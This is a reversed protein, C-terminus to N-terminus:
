ISEGKGLRLQKLSELQKIVSLQKTLSDSINDDTPVYCIDIFGEAFSERVKHYRIDVHKTRRQNVPNKVMQIASQNDSYMVPKGDLPLGIENVVNVLWM